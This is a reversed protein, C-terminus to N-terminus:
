WFEVETAGKGYKQYSADYYQLRDYGDLLKMISTRLIGQGIGHILILRRVKRARAEDIARRAHYMQIDLMKDKSVLRENEVLNHIHLDVEMVNTDPTFVQSKNVRIVEQDKPHIEGSFVSKALLDNRDILVLENQPYWADFGDDRMVRVEDGRHEMVEAEGVDSLFRVKDGVNFSM